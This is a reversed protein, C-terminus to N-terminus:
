FMVPKGLQRRVPVIQGAHMMPHTGILIFMDAVTPCFSQFNEPSAGALEEQSARDLVALTQQRVKDMLEFYEDKKLFKSPDDSDATEKSHAEAFGEPLAFADDPFMASLMSVEAAILHGMQWALHNCGKGPRKMLEADDFDSLYGKFVLNSFNMASRIADKSQM